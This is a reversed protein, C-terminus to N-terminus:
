FLDQFITIAPDKHCLNNPESAKTLLMEKLEFNLFHCIIDSPILITPCHVYHM